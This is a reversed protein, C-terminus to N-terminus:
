AAEDAAIREAPSHPALSWTLRAPALKGRPAAAGRPNGIGCPPISSDHIEDELAPTNADGIPDPLDGLVLQLLKAPDIGPDCSQFDLDDFAVGPQPATMVYLDGAVRGPVHEPSLPRPVVDIRREILDDLLEFALQGGISALETAM